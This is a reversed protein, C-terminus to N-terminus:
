IELIPPSVFRARTGPFLIKARDTILEHAEESSLCSQLLESLEALVASERGLRNTERYLEDYKIVQTFLESTRRISIFSVGLLLVASVVIM